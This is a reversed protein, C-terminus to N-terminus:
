QHGMSSSFGCIWQFGTTCPSNWVMPSSKECNICSDTSMHWCFFVFLQPRTAQPTTHFRMCWSMDAGFFRGFPSFNWTFFCWLLMGQSLLSIQFFFCSNIVKCWSCSITFFPSSPKGSERAFCAWDFLSAGTAECSSLLHQFFTVFGGGFSAQILAVLTSTENLTKTAFWVTNVACFDHWKHKVFWVMQSECIRGNTIWLAHSKHDLFWM